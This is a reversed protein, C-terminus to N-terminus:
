HPEASCSDFQARMGQELRFYERNKIAPFFCRDLQSIVINKGYIQSVSTPKPAKGTRKGTLLSYMLWFPERQVAYRVVTWWNYEKM